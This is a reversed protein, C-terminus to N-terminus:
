LGLTAKTPGFASEHYGRKDWRTNQWGSIRGNDGCVPCYWHISEDEDDSLYSM